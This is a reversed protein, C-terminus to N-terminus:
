SGEGAPVRDARDTPPFLGNLFDLMPDPDSVADISKEHHVEKTEGTGPQPLPSQAPAGACAAPAKYAPIADITRLRSILADKARARASWSNGISEIEKRASEIAAVNAANAERCADREQTVRAHDGRLGAMRWHQIEWSVGGGISAGVALLVAAAIVMTKIDSIM